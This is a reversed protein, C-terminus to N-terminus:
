DDLLKLEFKFGAEHVRDIFPQGLTAPTLVGGGLKKAVIGDDKLITLAAQSLLLATVQLYMLLPALLKEFCAVHSSSKRHYAGGVYSVRCYARKTTEAGPPVDPLAIGRLDFRSNAVDNEVAERTPMPLYKKLLWRVPKLSLLILLLVLALHLLVGTFLNRARMLESFDFHPGYFKPGGLLGWTRQVVPTNSISSVATTLTGLDRVTRVGLIKSFLSVSSNVAPAPIPSLAYPVHVDRIESLTFYDAFDLVTSLTGPSPTTRCIITPM